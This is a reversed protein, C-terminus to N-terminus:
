LMLSSIFLAHALTLSLLSSLFEVVSSCHSSLLELSTEAASMMNLAPPWLSAGRTEGVVCQENSWERRYM